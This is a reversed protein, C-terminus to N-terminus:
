SGVQVAVRLRGCLLASAFYLLCVSTMGVVPWTNFLRLVRERAFWVGRWRECLRGDSFGDVVGFWPDARRVCVINTWARQRRVEVDAAAHECESLQAAV